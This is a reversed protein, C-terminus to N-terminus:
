LRHWARRAEALLTTWWTEVTVPPRHFTVAVRRVDVAGARSAIGPASVVFRLTDADYSIPFSLHARKWGDGLDDVRVYPTLVAKIGEKIAETEPTLRRPQPEFFAEQTFAFYGDAVLRVDGLPASVAIPAAVSDTRDIRVPTHTREHNGFASGLSVKQLGEKHFTDAVIHRATTWATLANTSTTAFGVIDGVVLRPGVVWRPNTTSIQRIFIDDDAIIKIRYVGPNLDKLKVNVPIIAGYGSDRSGGTGVTDQWVLQGDRLVQLALMGGSRNRNVDQVLIQFNIQGNAPVVWFDHAGRLSFSITKPEPLSADAMIPSTTTADWVALGRMDGDDLRSSPIGALVYGKTGKATTVQSWAPDELVESYWPYLDLQKGEADLVMGFEVLSQHIPRFDMEVDVSQHPGPTRVNMYVPDDTIRQGSWGDAQKGPSTTREGPLFPFIFASQGTMDSEVHFVGSLPFRLILIWFLVFVGLIWPITCLIIVLPKPIRIESM